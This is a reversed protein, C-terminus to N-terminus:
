LDGLWIGRAHRDELQCEYLSLPDSFSTLTLRPWWDKGSGDHPLAIHQTGKELYDLAPYWEGDPRSVRKGGVTIYGVEQMYPDDVYAGFYSNNYNSGTGKTGVFGIAFNRASAQPSQCHLISGECNWYVINAGRWGHGTGGNGADQAEMAGSSSVRDFLSGTAWNQHPGISSFPREARCNTYVNPGCVGGSVFSHRDYLTYCNKILILEGGSIEFAYRRSGLIVSVPDLSKCDLVTVCRAGGGLWALSMGM